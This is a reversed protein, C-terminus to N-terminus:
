LVPRSPLFLVLAPREMLLCSIAVALAPVSSPGLLIPACKVVGMLGLPASMLIQPLPYSDSHKSFNCFIILMCVLAARATTSLNTAMAVPAPSPAKHTSVSRSVTMAERQVSM